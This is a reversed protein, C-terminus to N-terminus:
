HWDAAVQLITFRQQEIYDVWTLLAIALIWVKGVCDFPLVCLLFKTVCFQDAQLTAFYL